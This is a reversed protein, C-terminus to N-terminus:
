LTPCRAFLMSVRLSEFVTQSWIILHRLTEAFANGSFSDLSDTSLSVNGHHECVLSIEQTGKRQQAGSAAVCLATSGTFDGAAPEEESSSQLGSDGIGSARRLAVIALRADHIGVEFAPLTDQVM